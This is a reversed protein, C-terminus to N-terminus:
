TKETRETREVRHERHHHRIKGAVLTFLLTILLISVLKM